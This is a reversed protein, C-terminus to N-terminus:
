EEHHAESGCTKTWDVAHKVPDGFMGCDGNLHVSHYKATSDMLLEYGNDCVHNIVGHDGDNLYVVDGIKLKPKLESNTAM